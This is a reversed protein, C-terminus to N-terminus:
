ETSTVSPAHWRRCPSPALSQPSPRLPGGRETWGSEGMLQGNAASLLQQVWSWCTDGWESTYALATLVQLHCAHVSTLGRATPLAQTAMEHGETMLAALRSCRSCVGLRRRELLWSEHVWRGVLNVHQIWGIAHFGWRGFVAYVADTYTRNRKGAPHPLRPHCLHCSCCNPQLCAKYAQRHMSVCLQPGLVGAPQNRM